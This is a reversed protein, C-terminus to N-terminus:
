RRGRRGSPRECQEDGLRRRYRMDRRSEAERLSDDVVGSRWPSPSALPVDPATTEAPRSPAACGALAVAVACAALRKACM